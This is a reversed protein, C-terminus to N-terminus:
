VEVELSTTQRDIIATASSRTEDIGLVYNRLPKLAGPNEPVVSLKLYDVGFLLYQPNFGVIDVVGTQPNYQGVNDRMVNGDLDYIQLTTAGLKNRLQVVKQDLQFTTSTVRSETFSPSAIKMPFAVSHTTETGPTPVFRLQAKVDIMTSLIATNLADIETALNSRRFVADFKNLNNLIYNKQYSFVENEAAVITVGTLAPDFNFETNLELLVETPEIFKTDISMVSLNNTFNNVISSEVADKITQSTGNNYKLSVYVVGYDVPVNEDGSWVACDRVDTFNSLITTKYDLSTVLRQQTAYAYPALLKISDISQKNAGRSSESSTIVNLSFNQNAYEVTSTSTFSTIANAAPGKVQLYTVVIKNGADPSKGFSIGDGFNLEYFGNPAERITFLRSNEDVQVADKVPIYQEYASGGATQYVQVVATTKDMNKDPIIYIQRETKEGVYFTKTKELQDIIKTIQEIQM